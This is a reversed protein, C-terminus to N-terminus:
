ISFPTLLNVTQATLLYNKNGNNVQVDGILCCNLIATDDPISENDNSDKEFSKQGNYIWSFQVINYFRKVSGCGYHKGDFMEHPVM